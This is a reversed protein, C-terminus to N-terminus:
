NVGDFMASFHFDTNYLIQIKIPDNIMLTEFLLNTLLDTNISLVPFIRGM